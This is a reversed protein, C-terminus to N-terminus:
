NEQQQWNAVLAQCLCQCQGWQQKNNDRGGDGVPQNNTLRFINKFIINSYCDGNGNLGIGVRSCSSSSRIDSSTSKKKGNYKLNISNGDRKSHQATSSQENRYM